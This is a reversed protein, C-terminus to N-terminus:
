PRRCIRLQRVTGLKYVFLTASDFAIISRSRKEEQYIEGISKYVEFGDM